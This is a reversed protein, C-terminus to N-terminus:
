CAQLSNSQAKGSFLDNGGIFLAITHYIDKKPLFKYVHKVQAGPLLLKNFNAINLKKAQIDGFLLNRTGSTKFLNYRM